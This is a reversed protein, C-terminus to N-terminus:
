LKGIWQFYDAPFNKNVLPKEKFIGYVSSGSGSMSAYIAGQQFLMTKIIQLEPHKVFMIKEFDNIVADKWSEIPLTILESLMIDPMAPKVLEYAKATKIHISPKIIYIYKDNLIPVDMPFIVDGKDIGLATKNEIFFACDSGLKQAFRKLEKNDLNLKFLKNLLLLSFAADASGGGLGAGIPIRKHLYISVLPLCYAQKLLNYAKVCLNNPYIYTSDIGTCRFEFTKSEKIEIIDCLYKIPVLLTEIAHYGDIRKNLIQLGINIKCNPFILM